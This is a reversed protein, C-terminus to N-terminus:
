NPKTYYIELKLRKDEPVDPTNGYLITGLPNIVSAYPVYDTPVPTPQHNKIKGNGLLSISETVVLGLRVNTSDLEANVLNRIHNTIRIKYRVGRGNEVDEKELLGGHIFKSSKPNATSTVDTYYDILPRKNDLDYLYVRRPEPASGMATNEIYFTLAANNVLWNNQRIDDLQDSVGNPTNILQAPTEPNNDHDNYSYNDADSFLKIVATSGAGGKLYLKPDGLATNPNSSGDVYSQNDVNEFLNVTNGAMNLIITKTERNDAPGQKYTITVTGQKFNILSLSGQSPSGAANEVKFYLGRFYQKFANNNSLNTGVGAGFIKDQFFQKKLSLKMAPKSRSDIVPNGDDDLKYKIIERKDFFFQDNQSQDVSVSDNLRDADNYAGLDLDSYYVQQQQFGTDPDLDRLFYRSEFVGLKIKEAGYISDLTYTHNGDDDTEDLTSYYPVLLEVKTVVPNEEIAPDDNDLELQTVFSAKTSGFVPNNYFGLSNIPQNNSQVAGTRRNYAVVDVEDTFLGFHEEGIIGSGIENFDKDCSAFLVVTLSFLVTKFFSIKNM